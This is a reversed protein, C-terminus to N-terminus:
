RTPYVDTEGFKFEITSVLGNFRTEAGKKRGPRFRWGRVARLAAEDFVGPSTASVVQANLVRGDAAVDYRVEVAGKLGQARAAEPYVLADGRLLVPPQNPNTLCGSLVSLFLALGLARRMQHLRSNAFIPKSM